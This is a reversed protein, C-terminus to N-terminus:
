FVFYIKKILFREGQATKIDNSSEKVTKYPNSNYKYTKLKYFVEFNGVQSINEGFVYKQLIVWQSNSSTM